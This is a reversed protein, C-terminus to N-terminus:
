REPTGHEVPMGVHRMFEDVISGGKAPEADDEGATSAGPPQRRLRITFTTGKGPASAVDITADMAQVLSRVIYLGIGTGGFRRVDTGEAQWFRDFCRAQQDETMGIGEDRCRILVHTDDVTAELVVPGGEPSYKVANDLLHDVVTSLGDLDAWALPLDDPLRREVTRATASEVERSRQALVDDVRCMTPELDVHGAEIRSTMLLRDVISSLQAARAEIATTAERQQDPGLSVTRLMQAFGRIVTLPTKLEHSATALFLTKAEDAQKVSTIDRFSHIVEVVEGDPSVLPTASALLPQRQGNPGTRHVEVTAEGYSELLQCRGECALTRAGDRLAVLTGCREDVVTAADCGFVGEAARNVSRIRGDATTTLVADGIAALIAEAKDSVLRLGTAARTEQTTQDDVLFVLLAAMGATTLAASLTTAQEGFRGAVVQSTVVFLAMVLGLLRGGAWTHLAVFLLGALAVETDLGTVAGFALLVAADAAVTVALLPRSPRRQGTGALAVVPVYVVALGLGLWLGDVDVFPALAGLISAVLLRSLFLVIRRRRRETELDVAEHDLRGLALPEDFAVVAGAGQGQPRSRRGHEM